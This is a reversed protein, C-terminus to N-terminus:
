LALGLVDAALTAFGLFSLFGVVDTVTTLVISASQAPDQGLATLVIPILAGALGAMVMSVVMSVALVAPIGISGSFLYVVTSTTVAVAIGNLFCATLEKRVVQLWNGIRIERLALGRMTVALAQAGTNGSQGAVVPLLVALATFRAITSEFLAVVAAALFATALNVQLWPLRKRVALMPSSLAREARGAGVMAQLNEAAEQQAAQVLSDYRIIGILRGDFDVVPLGSVRTEELVDVVDDRTATAPARVPDGHALDRLPTAPDAVALEQLPVTGELRHEEDVVCVVTVRRDPFSRIRDLAEAATQEGRFETVRPDMLSGATDPPHSLLLRLERRRSGDLRGLAADREDDPWRGLIAAVTVVDIRGLLRSAHEEGVIRLVQGAWDPDAFGLVRAVHDDPLEGMLAAAEDASRRSLAHAAEAPREDFFEGVLARRAADAM